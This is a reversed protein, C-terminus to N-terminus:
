EEILKVNLQRDPIDLIIEDGENLLDIPGGGAAERSM